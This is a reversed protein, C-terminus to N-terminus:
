LFTVLKAPTPKVVEIIFQIALFKSKDSNYVRKRLGPFNCCSLFVFSVACKNKLVVRTM